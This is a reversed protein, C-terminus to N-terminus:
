GDNINGKKFFLFVKSSYVQNNPLLYPHNNEDMIEGTIRCIWTSEGKQTSPLKSVM